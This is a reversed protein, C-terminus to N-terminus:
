YRTMCKMLMSGEIRARTKSTIRFEVLTDENLVNVKQLFPKLDLKSKVNINKYISQWLGGEVRGDISVTPLETEEDQWIGFIMEHEHDELSVKHTHSPVTHTHDMGHSHQNNHYHDFDNHTHDSANARAMNYVLINHFEEETIWIDEEDVLNIDETTLLKITNERYRDIEEKSRIRPYLKNALQQIEDENDAEINELADGLNFLNLPQVDSTYLITPNTVPSTGLAGLTLAGSSGNMLALVYGKAVGIKKEEDNVDYVNGRRTTNSVYGIYHKHSGSNLASLQGGSGKWGTAWGTGYNGGSGYQGATSSNNINVKSTTMSSPKSTQDSNAATTGVTAGGGKVARSYGRFKKPELYLDCQRIESLGADLPITFTYPYDQDLNDNFTMRERQLMGKSSIAVVGTDADRIEIGYTGAEYEGIKVRAKKLNDYITM